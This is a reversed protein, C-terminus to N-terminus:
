ARSRPTAAPRQLGPARLPARALRRESPLWLLVLATLLSVGAMLALLMTFGGSKVIPGLAWVAASSIGFSVALRIGAVRSRLRDDVYRVVIADTFPIAGFITVMFGFMFALMAWGQAHGALALLPAQALVIGVYLPKLAVRDILRGVVVQAISAVAYVGALMAGLLAPDRVIGAFREALLQGNGNTTFNFLLSGTVAAATMVALARMMLAPPLSLPARTTRKAPPETEQPSLRAFAVGLALSVLGPVIFAMRWGALQVLAGTVLAALAVGLNGSLGSIGITAGPRVAHQVLM